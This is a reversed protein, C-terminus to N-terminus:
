ANIERIKNINDELEAKTVNGNLKSLINDNEDVFVTTPLSRVGYKETIKENEEVDIEEFCIDKYCENKSVEEFTKGYVKCPFCWSASFKIIKTIMTKKKKFM